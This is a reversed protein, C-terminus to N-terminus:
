GTDVLGDALLKVSWATHWEEALVVVTKGEAAAPDIVRDIVARPLSSNWDRLKGEEDDYVGGRHQASIWQCWRRLHLRGGESDEEGPLDADGCFYLYTDFGLQALARSLGTERVGLGGAQSYVDPGEFSLLVFVTRRRDLTM